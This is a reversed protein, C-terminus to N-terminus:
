SSTVTNRTPAASSRTRGQGVSAKSGPQAARALAIQRVDTREAAFGGGCYSLYYQWMRIFREDFGMERVRPLAADFNARWAALTRAYSRGHGEDGLWRLGADAADAHLVSPAPVQSGPFVYRRVFDPNADSSAWHRDAVVIIQLGARGGPALRDHVTHFFGSWRGQPISEIMEISTIADFTGPTLSFDELRVSIRDALGEEAALKGVYAAQERSVTVTTVDCGREGAAYRAFGGWGSGIELVSMGPELGALDAVRRYKELQAQELTTDADAFVASSYTMTPDLWAAFFENGLDYHQVTTSLPGRHAAARGIARWAWKAAREVPEPIRSRHEPDLHRAGLEILAALDPSDFDRAIWGDALGIAGLTALRRLLRGEHLEVRADPGPVGSDYVRGTGDPLRVELSGLRVRGGLLELLRRDVVNMM